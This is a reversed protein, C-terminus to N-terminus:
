RNVVLIRFIDDRPIIKPFINYFSDIVKVNGIKKQFIFQLPITCQIGEDLGTM